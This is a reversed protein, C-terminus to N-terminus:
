FEKVDIGVRGLDNKGAQITVDVIGKPWLVDKKDITVNDVFGAREHWIRFQWNGVPLNEIKFTGRESTVAVYPTEAIVLYGQMWPHINCTVPMPVREPVKFTMVVTANPPVLGSFAPNAFLAVNVNHGVQDVNGIKLTQGVTVVGIHPVFRCQASDFVSPQAIAAAAQPHVPPAVGAAPQLMVVINAIGNRRGIVLSEDVLKINGCGAGPPVAVAKPVPAQGILEFSGELDGWQQEQAQVQTVRFSTWGLALVLGCTVFARAASRM